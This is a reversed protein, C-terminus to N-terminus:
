GKIVPFGKYYRRQKVGTKLEFEVDPLRIDGLVGRKNVLTFGIVRSDELSFNKFDWM